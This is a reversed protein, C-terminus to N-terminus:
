VDEYFEYSRGAGQDTERPAKETKDSPATGSGSGTGATASADHDRLKMIFSEKSKGLVDSRGSLRITEKEQITDKSRDGGGESESARAIVRESARSHLEHVHAKTKAALGEHHAVAVM